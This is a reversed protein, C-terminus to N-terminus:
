ADRVELTTLAQKLETMAWEGSAPIPYVIGQQSAAKKAADVVATLEAVEVDLGAITQTKAHLLEKQKAVEVQLGKIVRNDNARLAELKAAEAQLEECWKIYNPDSM